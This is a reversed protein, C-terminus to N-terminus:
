RLSGFFNPSHPKSTSSVGRGALAFFGCTYFWVQDRGLTKVLALGTVWGLFGPLDWYPSGPKKIGFMGCGVDCMAGGVDWMGCGM